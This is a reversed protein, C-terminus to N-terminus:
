QCLNPFAGHDAGAGSGAGSKMRVPKVDRESVTGVVQEVVEESETVKQAMKAIVEKSKKRGAVLFATTTVCRNYCLM